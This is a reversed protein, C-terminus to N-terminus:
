RKRAGFAVGDLGEPGGALTGAVFGLLLGPETAFASAMAHCALERLSAALSAQASFAPSARELGANDGPPGM